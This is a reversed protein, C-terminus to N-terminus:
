RISPSDELVVSHHLKRLGLGRITAKQTEPRHIPSSVLTIKLKLAM